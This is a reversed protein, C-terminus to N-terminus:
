AKKSLTIIVAQAQAQTLGALTKSKYYDLIQKQKDTPSEAKNILEQMRKLQEKTAPEKCDEESKPLTDANKAQEQEQVQVKAKEEDEIHKEDSDADKTDDLLFLGNLAYKRAYSSTSGTAQSSDMGNKGESERAYAAVEIVDNSETDILKAISRVYSKENVVVIEDNLTLATKTKTLFPKVAECISEANRYYYKGFKNYLNKPAKIETQIASLKEYINM